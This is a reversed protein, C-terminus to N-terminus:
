ERLQLVRTESSPSLTARSPRCVRRQFRICVLFATLLGPSCCVSNRFIWVSLLTLVFRRFGFVELPESKPQPLPFLLSPHHEGRLRDSAHPVTRQGLRPASVSTDKKNRPLLALFTLAGGFLLRNISKKPSSAEAEKRLWKNHGRSGCLSPLLIFQPGQRREVDFACM